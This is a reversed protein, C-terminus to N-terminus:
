APADLALATRSLRPQIHAEAPQPYTTWCGAGIGVRRAFEIQEGDLHAFDIWRGALRRDQPAQQCGLVGDIVVVAWAKVTIPQLIALAPMNFLEESGDFALPNAKLLADDLVAGRQFFEGHDCKDTGGHGHLEHESAGSGIVVLRGRVNKVSPLDGDEVRQLGVVALGCSCVSFGM